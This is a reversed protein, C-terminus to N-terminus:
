LSMGASQSRAAGSTRVVRSVHLPRGRLSQGNLAREAEDLKAANVLQVHAFSPSTGTVVDQILKVRLVPYGRDEIWQRLLDDSCDFPVNSFLLRTPMDMGRTLLSADQERSKGPM